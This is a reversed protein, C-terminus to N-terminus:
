GPEPRASRHGLASISDATTPSKGKGRAAAFDPQKARWRTITDRSVGFKAAIERNTLRQAGLEQPHEVINSNSFPHALRHWADRSLPTKTASFPTLTM